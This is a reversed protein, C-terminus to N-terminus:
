LSHKSSNKLVQEARPTDLSSLFGNSQGFTSPQTKKVMKRMTMDEIMRQRLPRIAATNHTSTIITM